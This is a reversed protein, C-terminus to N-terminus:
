FQSGPVIFLVYKVTLFLENTHTKKFKLKKDFVIDFIGKSHSLGLRFRKIDVIADCPIRLNILRCPPISRTSAVLLM